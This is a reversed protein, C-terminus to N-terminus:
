ASLLTTLKKCLESNLFTKGVYSEKDYCVWKYKHM